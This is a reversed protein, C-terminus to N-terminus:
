IRARNIQYDALKGVVAIREQINHINVWTHIGLTTEFIQIDPQESFPM